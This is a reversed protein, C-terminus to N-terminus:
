SESYPSVGEGARVAESLRDPDTSPSTSVHPQCSSQQLKSTMRLVRPQRHSGLACIPNLHQYVCTLALDEARQAQFSVSGELFGPPKNRFNKRRPCSLEAESRAALGWPTMGTRLM